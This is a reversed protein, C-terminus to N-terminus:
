GELASHQQSARGITISRRAIWSLATESALVVPMDQVTFEGEQENLSACKVVQLFVM